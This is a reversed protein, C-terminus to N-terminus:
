HNIVHIIMVLYKQRDSALALQYFSITNSDTSLFFHSSLLLLSLSEFELSEIKMCGFQLSCLYIQNSSALICYM